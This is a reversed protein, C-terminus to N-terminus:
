SRGKVFTRWMWIAFMVIVAAIFAYLTFVIGTTVTDLNRPSFMEWGFMFWLLGTLAAFSAGVGLRFTAEFALAGLLAAGIERFFQAARTRRDPQETNM